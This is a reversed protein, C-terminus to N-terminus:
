LLAYICVNGLINHIVYTTYMSTLATSLVYVTTFSGAGATSLAVGTPYNGDPFQSKWKFLRHAEPIDPNVLLSSSGMM